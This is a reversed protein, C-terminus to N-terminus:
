AASRASDLRRRVAARLTTRDVELVDLARALVGRDPETAALLVHGSLLPSRDAKALKVALQFAANLSAGARYRGRARPEPPPLHADIAEEGPTVGVARLARAHQAVIAERLRERDVGMEGLAGLAIRDDLELSALLLHEVGTERLGERQAVREAEPFLRSMTALDARARRLKALM